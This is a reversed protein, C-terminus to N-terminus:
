YGGNYKRTFWEVSALALLVFFIWKLNLMPLIDEYTHILGKHEMNSVQGSLAAIENTQFFRGGSNSALRRLLGFDAVQDISELQLERVIFEGRAVHKTNNIDVSAEYRYTGEEFGSMEFLTYSSTPIFTAERAEGQENTIKVAVEQGYIREYIDNYLEVQFEVSENSYYESKSTYFRFKRKDVRTSLYQILKSFIEDFTASADTLAYEQMRWKWFDDALMFASKGQNDDVVYLLPRNTTVNGVKQYLLTEVASTVNYEGFPVIVPPFTSLTQSSVDTLTFKSFAPNLAGVVRDKQNRYPRISLHEEQQNARSLVSNRGMIHFVPVDQGALRDLIRSTRNLRDYSQHVIVLDYKGEEFQNVGPIHVSLEYNQNKGIVASLAKLDPHPAPALMLIKQKGDVVDVFITRSNNEKIVEGELPAVVVNLRQYGSAEASVQLEVRQVGSGSKFDVTEQDLLKGGQWVQVRSQRGAFGYNIVEVVVPYLNGQYAIKNFIAQKLVLDEKQLTDGVGVTNIKFPYPFYAPSSGQNFKGDSVLYVEALNTGEYDTQVQRFWNHLNTAEQDFVIENIDTRGGLSRIEVDYDQGTLAERFSALQNLLEGRQVSDSGYTMSQSNDVGIVVKSNEVETTFQRFLPNLLLFVLALVLLFRLGTLLRNITLSWSFSKSYILWAAGAAVLLGPILFLPSLEFNISGV